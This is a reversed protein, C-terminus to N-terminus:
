WTVLLEAPGRQLLGAKWPVDDAPVALALNPFRGLLAAMNTQLEMRAMLNGPCYHPGHGFTLHPNDVRSLDLRDPDAFVSADRNGSPAAPLVHEGARVTVGELEIDTTAIRPHGASAAAGAALPVFRLLEEVARQVRAPLDARLWALQDPHTLLTYTFNAIQNAVTEHGNVLLNIAMAVLENETTTSLENSDMAHVLASLMNDAPRGRYGGILGGIYAALDDYAQDVQEQSYDQTSMIIRSWRGFREQDEVPVGLIQCILMVPMRSAYQAVLDVPPGHEVLEDLLGEVIEQARPRLLEVHRATFAPAVLQRLRTHEPPDASLIADERAWIPGQRPTKPGVALARSFRPDSFVARNAAHSAALWTESGYPAQVWAVPETERLEAYLPDPDLRQPPDFSYRHPTRKITM